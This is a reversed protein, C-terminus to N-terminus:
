SRHYFHFLLTVGSSCRFRMTVNYGQYRRMVRQFQSELAVGDRSPDFRPYFSLQGGTQGVVASVSGIDMFKSPALFMSVGIGEEALEEGIELWAVDRPKHLTKEKDTDYLESEHPVGPLAGIGTIPLM